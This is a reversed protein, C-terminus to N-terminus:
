GLHPHLLHHHGDGENDHHGIYRPKTLWKVVKMRHRVLFWGIIVAGSVWLWTEPIIAVSAAYETWGEQLQPAPHYRVFAAVAANGNTGGPAQAPDLVFAQVPMVLLVIWIVITCVIKMTLREDQLLESSGM